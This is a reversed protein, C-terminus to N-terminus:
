HIKKKKKKKKKKVLISKQTICKICLNFWVIKINKISAFKSYMTSCDQM